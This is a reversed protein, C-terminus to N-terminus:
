SHPVRGRPRARHMARAAAGTEVHHRDVTRRWGCRRPLNGGLRPDDGTRARTRHEFLARHLAPGRSAYPPDAALGKEHSQVAEARDDAPTGADAKRRYEADVDLLESV